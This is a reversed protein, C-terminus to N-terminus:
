QKAEGAIPATAADTMRAADITRALGGITPDRFFSSLGIQLGFVERCRTIFRAALLSHGGAEFFTQQLHDARLALEKSWIQTVAAITEASASATVAVPAMEAAPPESLANRDVKGSVTVPIREVTVFRNPILFAPANAVFHQRMSQESAADGFRYVVHLTLRTDGAVSRHLKAACDKVDPHRRAIAEVEALEVRVGRLKVQDDTRGLYRLRGDPLWAARDGTRYMRASPHPSFPDRRFADATLEASKWYGTAVGSGGIWLMGPLGPGLVRDREDLVYTRFGQLPRGISPSEDTKGIPEATAWISTETPGYMNIVKVPLSALRAALDAPFAEGGVLLVDLGSIAAAGDPEELISRLVTPTVQYHTARHGDGIAAAHLAVSDAAHDAAQRLEALHKLGALVDATPLGFDILCAIEQVGAAATREVIQMCDAISGILSLGNLHRDCALELIADVDQPLLREIESQYGLAAALTRVLDLSSALYKKMPGRARARVRGSDQDVATHLMLSAHGLAPYGARGRATRYLALKEALEEFTQGILHTLIGAGNRGATEFTQPSRTATVWVPLERQVPPPFLRVRSLAGQGDPFEVEGGSWLTRVADIAQQMAAYRQDFAEPRLVFDNVHWGAAFAIGVRGGSLNDVVSWEEAIRVPHHLPAVVSGARIAIRRAERSLAAALVAPNPYLGGFRHFHREPIWIAEFGADDAFRASELLLRYRDSPDADVDGSFFFLSFGIPRGAARLQVTPRPSQLQRKWGLPGDPAVDVAMGVSVPWILELISIDFAISTGAAWIGDVRGLLQDMAHLFTALNRHSVLV